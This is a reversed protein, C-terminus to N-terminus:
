EDLPLAAIDSPLSPPAIAGIDAIRALVQGALASRGGCESEVLKGFGNMRRVVSEVYRTQLTEVVAGVQQEAGEPHGSGWRASALDLRAHCLEGPRPSVANTETYLHVSEMASAEADPLRQPNGTLLYTNARWYLEKARPFDAMGGPGDLPNGTETVRDRAREVRALARGSEQDRGQLALARAYIAEIRVTATGAEAPRELASEAYAIAEDPRDDWFAVLAQLGRVWVQVGNHDCLDGLHLAARTQTFAPAVAGLDFSANALIACSWATVLYLDRAYSPRRSQQALAFSRDRLARAALLSELPSRSPYLTALQRLENTIEEVTFSGFPTTDMQEGLRASERASLIVMDGVDPSLVRVPSKAMHREQRSAAAAATMMQVPVEFLDALYSRWYPGPIRHRREWRSIQDQTAASNGSRDCLLSALKVQSWGREERLRAVLRGIPEVESGSARGPSQRDRPYPLEGRRMLM